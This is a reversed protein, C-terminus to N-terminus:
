PNFLNSASTKLDLFCGYLHKNIYEQLLDLLTMGKSCLYESSLNCAARPAIKQPGWVTLALFLFPFAVTICYFGVYGVKAYEIGGFLQGWSSHIQERQFWKKAYTGTFHHAVRSEASPDRDCCVIHDSNTAKEAHLEGSLVNRPWCARTAIAASSM